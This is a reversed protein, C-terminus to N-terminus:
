NIQTVCEQYRQKLNAVQEIHQFSAISSVLLQRICELLLPVTSPNNTIINTSINTTFSSNSRQTVVQIREEIRSEMAKRKEDVRDVLRMYELGYM